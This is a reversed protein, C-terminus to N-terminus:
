MDNQAVSLFGCCFCCCCCLSRKCLSLCYKCLKRIPSPVYTGIMRINFLLSRKCFSLCYKGLKQIPSILRVIYLFDKDKGISVILSEVFLRLSRQIFVLPNEEVVNRQNPRSEGILYGPAVVYLLFSAACGIACVLIALWLKNQLVVFLGTVFAVTMAMLAFWTLIIAFPLTDMFSERDSRSISWFTIVASSISSIMAITDSVVFVWFAASRILTAMGEDPGNNKFGGPITFAGTFTFTAILPSMFSIRKAMDRCKEGVKRGKEAEVDDLQTNELIDDPNFGKRKYAIKLAKLTLHQQLEMGRENHLKSIALATKNDNNIARIEVKPHRSLDGVVDSYCNKTALHLPTNGDADPSNFLDETEPLKLIYSVVELNGTEAALHLINRQMTDVIEITDPCDDLLTKILSIKGCKAALHVPSQNNIDKMYAVSSDNELLKEVMKQKCLAAAYHLPTRKKEDQVKVLSTATKDQVKVLSTAMKDKVKVPVKKSLIIDMTDHDNRLVAHHLATQGNHGIFELTPEHLDIIHKALDTFRMDIAITLPSEGADNIVLLSEKNDEALAKVVDGHKNRVAGHLPTNGYKDRVKAIYIGPFNEVSKIFYKVVDLRGAKAAVHVPTEGKLNSKLALSRHEDAIFKVLDMHGLRAAMHLITNGEPTKKKYIKGGSDAALKKIAEKEGRRAARILTKEMFEEEM